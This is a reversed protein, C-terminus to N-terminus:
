DPYRGSHRVGAERYPFVEWFLLFDGGRFPPTAGNVPGTYINLSNSLDPIFEKMLGHTRLCGAFVFPPLWHVEFDAYGAGQCFTSQETLAELCCGPSIKDDALDYQSALDM